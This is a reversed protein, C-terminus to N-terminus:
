TYELDAEFIIKEDCANQTTVSESSEGEYKYIGKVTYRASRIISQWVNKAALSLYILM